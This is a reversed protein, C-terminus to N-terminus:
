NCYAWCLCLSAKRLYDVTVDQVDYIGVEDAHEIGAAAAEDQASVYGKETPDRLNIITKAGTQAKLLALQEQPPQWDMLLVEETLATVRGRLLERVAEQVSPLADGGTLRAVKKGRRFVDFTPFAEVGEASAVESSHSQCWVAGPFLPPFAAYLPAVRECVACGPLSYMVACVYSGLTSAKFDDVNELARM